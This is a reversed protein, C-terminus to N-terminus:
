AKPPMLVADIVHIVGNSAVMDATVIQAKNVKINTHGDITLEVGAFSKRPFKKGRATESMLEGSIVHNKVFNILESRHEPKVLRGVSGAPLNEFAQDSPAFVTIPGSGKLMNALDAADLMALFRTLYGSYRAVEHIDREIKQKAKVAFSM